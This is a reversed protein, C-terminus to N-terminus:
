VSSIAKCSLLVYQLDEHNKPVMTTQWKEGWVSRSLDLKREIVFGEYKQHWCLRPVTASSLEVWNSSTVPLLFAVQQDVGTFQRTLKLALKRQCVLDYTAPGGFICPIVFYCSQDVGFQASLESLGM